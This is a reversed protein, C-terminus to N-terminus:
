ALVILAVGAVMIAGAGLHRGAHREGFWLVGYLMGFLLSTRKIAIMYAAEVEALALFHTLVMLAMLGAAVLSAGPKRILVRYEGPRTAIVLLAAGAGVFVFYWVAFQLPQLWQMATKGGASTFSYIAAVLLMRRSGRNRLIAVFPLLSERWRMGGSEPLNLVWSGLVVLLIGVLGTPSVTEGLLVWGTVTVLVPTFALYPLTLALPYDRISQMYLLMAILELPVLIGIWGWFAPPLAPLPQGLALPLLLAGTLGLRVLVIQRVGAEAFWRKTVADASALSLACILTLSLWHLANEPLVPM